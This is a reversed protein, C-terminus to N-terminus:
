SPRVLDLDLTLLSHDSLKAERVTHDYACGRVRAALAPTVFAHDLRFPFRKGNNKAYWTYERADGNVHRWADILGSKRLKAMGDHAKFPCDADVLSEGANFDGILLYPRDLCSPWWQAAAEWFAPLEPRQAPAYVAGVDLHLDPFRLELWGRSHMLSHPPQELVEFRERSLVCLGREGLSRPASTHHAFGADRLRGCLEAERKDLTEQLVIVDPRRDLVAAVIAQIRGGGGILVNWSLIRM